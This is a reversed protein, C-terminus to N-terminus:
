IEVVGDFCFEAPGTMYVHGDARWDICLAGGLLQVTVPAHELLGNRIAAVAAACAGTGCAMTEGSGREWVRMQLTHRDLVRIFEVNIREPFLATNREVAPGLTSLDLTHVDEDYFLVAHPNGMSLLTVEHSFVAFDLHKKLWEEGQVHAPLAAPDFRPAGMDVTVSEVVAGDQSLNLQMVKIGANSELRIPSAHMLGREYAYKAVCRTGNGCMLAESGDANFIRMKLDGGEQPPLIWIVGDAGISTHRQCLRQALASAHAPVTGTSADLLIFDNATGHMKTFTLKGM